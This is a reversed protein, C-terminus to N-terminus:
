ERDAKDSGSSVRWLDEHRRLHSFSLGARHIRGGSPYESPYYTGQAVWVEVNNTTLARHLNTFANAWDLGNNLGTAAKNVYYTSPPTGGEHAGIDVRAGQVRRRGGLDMDYLSSVIRQDIDNRVAGADIM